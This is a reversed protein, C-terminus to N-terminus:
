NITSKVQNLSELKLFKQMENYLGHPKYLPYSYVILTNLM